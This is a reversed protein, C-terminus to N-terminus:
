GAAATSLAAPPAQAPSDSTTPQASPLRGQLRLVLMALQVTFQADADTAVPLGILEEIRALRYRITNEHVGLVTAAQRISRGKDFFAALTHALERSAQGDALLAQLTEDAFRRVEATDSSALLLRAAGLDSAALVRQGAVGFRAICTVVQRATVYGRQYDALERCVGSIGILLEDPRELRGCAEGLMRKVSEVGVPTPVDAPLEALVVVGEAVAAALAGTAGLGGLLTALTPVDPLARTRGEAGTVLCVVRPVDLRVGMYNARRHLSAEDAAGGILEATLSAHVDWEARAARREASIEVAINTAARRCVHMDIGGFRSPSEMLVLRGWIDDRVIVPAIMFRHPLGANPLAEIVGGRTTDLAALADAVAPNGRFEPDLIRPEMAGDAGEPRALALRKYQADYIACPKGTLQSVVRAIERIDGGDLVLKTLRDEVQSARRLLQNQRAVTKVTARLKATMQAQGIAVAALDAFASAVAEDIARFSHPRDEDDLFFLGTVEGSVVMPVGMMSRVHWARMTSRMPRPDRLADQITVPAKTKLIENTFQDGPVGATLRKVEADIDSDAHGVQGRFLQTKTGRLYVSCREVGVLECINRAIMHLLEDLDEFEGLAGAVEGFARIVAQYAHEPSEGPDLGPSIATSVGSEAVAM